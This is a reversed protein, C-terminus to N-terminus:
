NIAWFSKKEESLPTIRRSDKRRKRMESVRSSAKRIM